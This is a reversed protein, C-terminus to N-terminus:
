TRWLLLPETHTVADDRLQTLLQERVKANRYYRPVGHFSKGDPIDAYQLTLCPMPERQDQLHACPPAGVKSTHPHCVAASQACTRRGRHATRPGKAVPLQRVQIDSIVGFSFVPRASGLTSAM